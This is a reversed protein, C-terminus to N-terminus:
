AFGTTGENRNPSPIARSGVEHETALQADIMGKLEREVRRFDFFSWRTYQNELLL